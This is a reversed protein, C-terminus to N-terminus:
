RGVYLTKETAVWVSGDSGIAPPATISERGATRLRQRVLDDPGIVRLEDAETVALTGDAFATAYMTAASPLAYVLKGAQFTAIGRGVVHVRGGGGDVPPQSAAFPVESEAVVAGRADLFHVRTWSGDATPHDGDAIRELLAYGQETISMDYASFRTPVDVIRHGLFAGTAPDTQARDGDFVVFRRSELAVAFRRDAAIAGCGRGPLHEKWILESRTRAPDLRESSLVLEAGLTEWARVSQGEHEMQRPVQSPPVSVIFGGTTRGMELAWLVHGDTSLGTDFNLQGANGDWERSAGGALYGDDLLTLSAGRVDRGRSALAGAADRVEYNSAYWLGVHDVRPSVVVASPRQDLPAVRVFSALVRPTATVRSARAPSAYPTVYSNM